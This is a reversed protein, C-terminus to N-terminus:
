RKTAPQQPTEALRAPPPQLSDPNNLKGHLAREVIEEIVIDPREQEIVDPPFERTWLFVARSFHPQFFKKQYEMFSDHFIVARPGQPDGDVMCYPRYSASYAVQEVRSAPPQKFKLTVLPERVIGILGLMAALDGTYTGSTDVHFADLPLAPAIKLKQAVHPMIASYGVYAGLENWHTDSSYYLQHDRKAERLAPRVDVLTITTRERLRELLQDFRSRSGVRKIHSPLYESYITHKNPAVYLLYEIGRAALWRQREEFVDQLHDLEKETFPRTCRYDELVKDGTFFLWGERGQIVPAGANSAAVAAANNGNPMEKLCVVRLYNNWRVMDDRFTFQDGFFSEFKGPFARWEERNGPLGSFQARPRNEFLNETSPGNWLLGLGPTVVIALFTAAQIWLWVRGHGSNAGTDTARTQDDM